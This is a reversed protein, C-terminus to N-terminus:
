IIANFETAVAFYLQHTTAGAQVLTLACEAGIGRTPIEMEPNAKGAGSPICITLLNTNSTTTSQNLKRILLCISFHITVYTGVPM